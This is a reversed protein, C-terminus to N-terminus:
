MNELKEKCFTFGCNQTKSSLVFRMDMEHIQGKISLQVEIACDSLSLTFSLRPLLEEYKFAFSYQFPMKNLISFDLCKEESM